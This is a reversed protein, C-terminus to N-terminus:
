GGQIQMLASAAIGIPTGACWNQERALRLTGHPDTQFEPGYLNLRSTVGCHSKMVGGRTKM